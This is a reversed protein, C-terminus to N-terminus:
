DNLIAKISKEIIKKLKPISILNVDMTETQGGFKMQEKVLYQPISM